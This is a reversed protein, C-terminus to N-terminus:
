FLIQAQFRVQQDDTANKGSTSAIAAQKHVNTYDAQLKLNHKNIYWSVAAANEVWHDNGATRNPDLYSYRYALEVEKPIVFYGAQAYFGESRLTHKSVQGKAEGTFYEGTASLGQWKFATDVGFTNFDLPEGTSFKQATTMLPSGIGYWGTSKAFGLNNTEGIYITDRYFNTGVSLLPKVSTDLDAESYKVDGFPNATIRAAFANDTTTRYTNQGVGGLGAVSYNVLGGAIKGHITLGTDYGPVFANTVVSQDVFQLATSPTIFQRGFQVKDQGFRFQVEDLWRYNTWTEELLGGNSTTGGAINAFNISLKYTLDPSYAYGNFLLKIRKLEFKSFDQAKKTATNNVDDLDQLTYRVQYSAGISSSFKGDTSTFNFGEGLKYKVPSSKVIEKYDDETIVGKEKLVDELSRASVSGAQAVILALGLLVGMKKM